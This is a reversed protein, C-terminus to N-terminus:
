LSLTCKKNNEPMPSVASPLVAAGPLHGEKRLRQLSVYQVANCGSIENKGLGVDQVSVVFM